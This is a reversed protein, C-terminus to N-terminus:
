SAVLDDTLTGQQGCVILLLKNYRDMPHTNIWVFVRFLITVYRNTTSERIRLQVQDQNCKCTEDQGNRNLETRHLTPSQNMTTPEGINDWPFHPSYACLSWSFFGGRRKLYIAQIGTSVREFVGPCTTKRNEVDDICHRYLIGYVRPDIALGHRFVICCLLM